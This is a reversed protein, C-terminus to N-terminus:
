KGTEAAVIESFSNVSYGKQTIATRIKSTDALGPDYQVIARGEKFDAKVSRIGEVKMVNTQITQECGTCTMGAISVEVSKLSAAEVKSADRNGANGCSFCFTLFLLLFLSRILSLTKM